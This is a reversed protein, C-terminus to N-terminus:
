SVTLHVLQDWIEYFYCLAPELRSEQAGGQRLQEAMRDTWGVCRQLAEECNNYPLTKFHAKVFGVFVQLYSLPDM